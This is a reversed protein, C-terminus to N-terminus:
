GLPRFISTLKNANDLMVLWLDKGEWWDLLFCSHIRRDPMGASEEKLSLWYRSLFRLFGDEDPAILRTIPRLSEIIRCKLPFHQAM